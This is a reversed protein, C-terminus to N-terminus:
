ARVGPAVQETARAQEFLDALDIAGELHVHVEAKPLARIMRQGTPTVVEEM